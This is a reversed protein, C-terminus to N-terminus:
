ETYSQDVSHQRLLETMENSGAQLSCDLASEGYANTTNVKAGAAILLKATNLPDQKKAPGQPGCAIVAWFLPTASFETCKAELEAGQKILLEVTSALGMSAAWHLARAGFLAKAEIDAGAAILVSAVKEAGLSTAAILPSERGLTGEILAGHELLLSAIQSAREDNLWDNFVCDSVYHLPDSEIKQNLFWEISQNALKPQSALAFRLSRLDGAEILDLFQAESM